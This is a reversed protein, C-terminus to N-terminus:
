LMRIGYTGIKKEEPPDLIERVKTNGRQALEQIFETYRQVDPLPRECSLIGLPVPGDPAGGKQHEELEATIFQTSLSEYWREECGQQKAKTIEQEFGSYDKKLVCDIIANDIYQSDYCSKSHIIPISPFEVTTISHTSSSLIEQDPQLILSRTLPILHRYRQPIKEPKLGLNLLTGVVLKGVSSEYEDDQKEKQKQKVQQDYNIRGDPTIYRLFIHPSFMEKDNKEDKVRVFTTVNVLNEPGELLGETLAFIAHTFGECNYCPEKRVKGAADHDSGDILLACPVDYKDGPKTEGIKEFFFRVAEDLIAEDRVYTPVDYPIKEVRGVFETREKQYHTLLTEIDDKTYIKTALPNTNNHLTELYIRFAYYPLRLIDDNKGQFGAIIIDLFIKKQEDSTKRADFIVNILNSVMEKVSGFSPKLQESTPTDALCAELNDPKKDPGQLPSPPISSPISFPALPAPYPVQEAEFNISPLWQEILGAKTSKDDYDEHNKNYSTVEIKCSSLVYSFLIGIVAFVNRSFIMGKLILM